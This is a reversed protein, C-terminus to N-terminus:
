GYSWRREANVNPWMLWFNSLKYDFIIDGQRTTLGSVCASEAQSWFTEGERSMQDCISNASPPMESPNSRMEKLLLGRLLRPGNMGTQLMCLTNRTIGWFTISFCGKSSSLFILHRFSIELAELPSVDWEPLKEFLRIKQMPSTSQDMNFMSRPSISSLLTRATKLRRMRKKFVDLRYRSKSWGYFTSITRITVWWSRKFRILSSKLYNHQGNFTTVTGNFRDQNTFQPDHNKQQQSQERPRRDQDGWFIPTRDTKIASNHYICLNKVSFIGHSCM